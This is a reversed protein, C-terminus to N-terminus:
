RSNSYRRAANAKGPSPIPQEISFMIAGKDRPDTMEVPRAYPTMYTGVGAMPATWSGAGEGFAEMASARSDYEALVPSRRAILALLSDLGMIQAHAQTVFLTLTILCLVRMLSNRAITEGDIRGCTNINKKNNMSSKES